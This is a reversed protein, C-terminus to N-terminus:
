KSEVIKIEDPTLNYLKYVLSDIEKEENTSDEGNQKLNLISEVLKIIKSEQEKTPKPIPIAEVFQKIWRFAGEGLNSAIQNMYFYILKSNLLALLYRNGNNLFYCTQNLNFNKDDYTFCSEKTMEAWAIKPKNFDEYYAITDQTEFWKNSTKKRCGVEGTQNIRPRYSELHKKVAPYEDIDLKLAPFTGSRFLM